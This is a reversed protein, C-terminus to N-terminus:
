FIGAPLEENRHALLESASKSLFWGAFVLSVVITIARSNRKLWHLAGEVIKSSQAPALASAIIPTLMLSQAAVIFLVYTLLSGIKGMRAEDIAAIASLSFVWQKFALSMMVAAMLFATPASMRCLAAMWKSPPADPDAEKFWTKVATILLVIGALLFLISSMFDMELQGGGAQLVKGFIRSFLVFQLLRVTIAGAAFASARFVGHDGRLLLLAIIIWMPGGVAAGVALPL